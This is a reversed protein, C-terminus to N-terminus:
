ANKDFPKFANRFDNSIETEQEDSLTCNRWDARDPTNLVNALVQRAFQQNFPAPRILHVFKQGDPLDVRLYSQGDELEDLAKQADSEWEVGQAAGENLFEQALSPAVDNPIPVVQIHAHGGRSWYRGLEFSVPVADYRAYCKTLADRCDLLESQVRQAIDAPLSFLNPYHSIPIVLAHGGGPVNSTKPDNLQGKPLTIYCEEGISVILHKTVRPNSLCFWCEDQTIEQPQRGKKGRKNTRTGESAYASTQHAFIYANKDEDAGRKKANALTPLPSSTCGAPTDEKTSGRPSISFAYFWRQKDSNGFQGLSIFRTSLGNPSTFPEREWFAGQGGSFVYKPTAYSVASTVASNGWSHAVPLGPLSPVDKNSLLTISSPWAHTLLIDLSINAPAKAKARASALSGGGNVSASPTEFHEAFTELTTGTIAPNLNDNDSHESLKSPDHAGGFAGIRLGNGTTLVSAKALMFVGDAIMGGGDSGVKDLLKDHLPKSGLTYYLETPPKLSGDLVHSIDDDSASEFLDGAVLTMNFNHKQTLSQIKDFFASIPTSPPGVVLVKTSESM